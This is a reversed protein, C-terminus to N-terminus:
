DFPPAWSRVYTVPSRRPSLGDGSLLLALSYTNETESSLLAKVASASRAGSALVGVITRNPDALDLTLQM